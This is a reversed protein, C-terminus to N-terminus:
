TGRSAGSVSRHRTALESLGRVIAFRSLRGVPIRDLVMVFGTGGWALVLVTWIGRVFWDADTFGAVAFPLMATALTVLALVTVMRDLLVGNVVRGLALGSRHTLYVRVADGGVTSPLLQNFFTGIYFFRIAALFPLPQNIARSVASWRIGCLVNQLVALGMAGGLWAPHVALMRDLADRVGVSGLLFWILAVSVALKVAFGLWRFWSRRGS